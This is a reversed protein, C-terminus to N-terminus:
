PLLPLLLPFKHPFTSNPRSGCRIKKWLPHTPFECSEVAHTSLYNRGFNDVSINEVNWLQQQFSKHYLLTYTVKKDSFLFTVLSSLWLPGGRWYRGGKSVGAAEGATRRNDYLINRYKEACILPAFIPVNKSQEPDLNLHQASVLHPRPIRLPTSKARPLAVCLAGKLWNKQYKEQQCLFLVYDKNQTLFCLFLGGM